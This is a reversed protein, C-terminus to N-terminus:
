FPLDETTVNADSAKINDQPQERPIVKVGDESVHLVSGNGIYYRPKRADRDEKSQSVFAAVNHGYQDNTDNVSITVGIGNENKKKLTDLMIALTDRKIYINMLASM